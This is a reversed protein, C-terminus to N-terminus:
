WVGPPLEWCVQRGEGLDGVSKDTRPPCLRGKPSRTVGPQWSWVPLVLQSAPTQGLSHAGGPRKIEKLRLDKSTHLSPPLPSWWLYAGVTPSSSILQPPLASSLFCIGSGEWAARLSRVVGPRGLLSCEQRLPM